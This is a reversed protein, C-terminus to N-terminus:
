RNSSVLLLISLGTSNDLVLAPTVHIYYRSRWLVKIAWEELSRIVSPCGVVEVLTRHMQRILIYACASARIGLSNNARKRYRLNIFFLLSGASLNEVWSYFNRDLILAISALEVHTQSETTPGSSFAWLCTSGQSVFKASM